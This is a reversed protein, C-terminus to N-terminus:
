MMVNDFHGHVVLWLYTTRCCVKVIIHCFKDEILPCICLFSIDIKKKLLLVWFQVFALLLYLKQFALRIRELLENVCHLM